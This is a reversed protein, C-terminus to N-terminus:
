DKSLRLCILLQQILQVSKVAFTYKAYANEPPAWYAPAGFASPPGPSLEFIVCRQSQATWFMCPFHCANSRIKLHDGFFTKLSISVTKGDLNLHDVGFYIKSTGNRYAKHLGNPGRMPGKLGMPGRFGTPVPTM